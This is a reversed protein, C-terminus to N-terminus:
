YLDLTQHEPEPSLIVAKRFYVSFQTGEGTKSTVHLKGNNADIFQKILILGIGTGAENNTGNGSIEKGAVKFLKTMKEPSIGIGTDKVHIAAYTEDESYYIEVTGGEPTFKIANGILNQIIIRVHDPDAHAWRDEESHHNLHINKNKALFNSISIIENVVGTINLTIFNSKIGLQQSNAWVLLNNLMLAVLNIQQYFDELIIERQEADIDGSRIFDMTQMIATFPSRLDHSIVSFLQDKIHNSEQLKEKQLSIEQKQLEIDNNQQQLTKNLAQARRTNRIIIVIFIIVCVAIVNRFIFLRKSFAITQEKAKIDNQLRINDGQQQKLHLYNIEKEKEKTFLSDNSKKLQKQYIFANKYDKIAAYSESLINLARVEDWGSKVKKALVVSKQANLIAKDYVGLKYYTQAIGSYAFGQEWNDTVKSNIVQGYYGLAAQYNKLHFYTEGTRNLVMSLLDNDKEQKALAIARSLYYFAKESQGTEDYCIGLDFYAKGIEINDKLGTFIKLAKKFNAIADNFKDQALYILGMNQYSAAIGHSYNIKNSIHMLKLSADLSSTYDSLVYYAKALSSLSIANGLAYKQFEALQLAQKAFYLASDAHNYLYKDSLHNLLIVSATDSRYDKQSKVKQWKTLLEGNTTQGFTIFSNFTLLWIFLFKVLFRNLHM